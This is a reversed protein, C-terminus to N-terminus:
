ALYCAPLRNAHQYSTQEAAPLTIVQQLKLVIALIDPLIRHVCKIQFVPHASM